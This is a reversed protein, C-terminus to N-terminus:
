KKRRPPTLGRGVVLRSSWWKDATRSQKNLVNAAEKRGPPRRRWGCGSSASHMTVFSFQMILVKM